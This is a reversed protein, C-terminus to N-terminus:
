KGANTHCEVGVFLPQLLEMAHLVTGLDAACMMSLRAAISAEACAHTGRMLRQGQTTLQLTLRRRDGDHSRRAVLKRSVLGDILRSMSPLAVGVHTAADSLSADRHHGIYNLVRFQPVSLPAARSARMEIRLAQMVQPVVQLIAKAAAAPVGASKRNASSM